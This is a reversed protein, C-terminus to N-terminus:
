KTEDHYRIGQQIWYQDVPDDGFSGTGTEGYLRLGPRGWEPRSTGAKTQAIGAEQLLMLPQFGVSRGTAGYNFNGFEEYERGLQKYDWDGKNKVKNYFDIPGMGGAYDINNRLNVGKPGSPIIRPGGMAASSGNEFGKSLTVTLNGSHKGVRITAGETKVIDGKKLDAVKIESTCSSKGRCDFVERGDPDTFRYPNGNAYRYRNFQTVHSSLAVVPDASYFIQLMPDYYRQQMYSLGTAADSVHGTFGPGDTVARNVQAGYPEYVTREIVNGAADTVAVPSGLADTHIYEVTQGWCWAPMGAALVLLLRVAVSGVGTARKMDRREMTGDM